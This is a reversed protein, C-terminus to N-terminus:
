HLPLSLHTRSLQRERCQGAAEHCAAISYPLQTLSRDECIWGFLLVFFYKRTKEWQELWERDRTKIGSDNDTTTTDMRVTNCDPAIMRERQVTVRHIKHHARSKTHVHIVTDEGCSSSHTEGTTLWNYNFIRFEQTKKRSIQFLEPATPVAPDSSFPIQSPNGALQCHSHRHWRDSDCAPM